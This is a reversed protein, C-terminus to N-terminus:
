SGTEFVKPFYIDIKAGGFRSGSVSINGSYSEVIERVVSLGIGQGPVSIDARVGRNIVEDRQAEPIGKGDDEISITILDTTSDASTDASSDAGLSIRVLGLCHKFANDLVNGLVEYFDSEDGALLLDEPLECLFTVGKDRYVKELAGSIREVLSAVMVKQSLNAPSAAMARKLQYAVISDMRETQENIVKKLETQDSTLNLSGKVVALPTKLSHALDGLSNKYRERQRHEHEILLNLNTVVGNLEKPYEGEVQDSEGKEIRRLNFALTKLPLLGWTTIAFQVLLLVIAMASLWGWLARRFGSVQSEYLAADEAVIFTYFTEQSGAGEWLVAFSLQYREAGTQNVKEFQKEGPALESVQTLADGIASASQWLGNGKKDVIWGYLGSSLQNFRPEQLAEPLFLKGEVEEAATLLAYIHLQLQSRANNEISRVFAQDLVWATLSLFLLLLTLSVWLLRARLSLKVNM